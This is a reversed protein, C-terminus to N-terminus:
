IWEGASFAQGSASCWLTVRQPCVCKPEWFFSPSLTVGVNPGADVPGFAIHMPTTSENYFFYHMRNAQEPMIVQTGGASSGRHDIYYLGYTTDTLGPLAPVAIGM